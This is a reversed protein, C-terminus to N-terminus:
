FIALSFFLEVAPFDEPFQVPMPELASPFDLRFNLEFSISDQKSSCCFHIKRYSCQVTSHFGLIPDPYHPLAFTDGFLGPVSLSTALLFFPGGYFVRFFIGTELHRIGPVM